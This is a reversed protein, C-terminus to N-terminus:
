LLIPANSVSIPPISRKRSFIVASSKPASLSLGHQLLWQNLSDLSLCLSSAADDISPDAVYLAIDDAYQMYTLLNQTTMERNYHTEAENRSKVASTCEHDWWPPSPIKNRASNKLPFSSDASSTIAEVFGEYCSKAHRHDYPDSLNSNLNPLNDIKQELISAFKLWDPKSLNYKLLPASTKELYTRNILSIVIPYHDSGHSLTTCNWHISAALEASCFTLDVCSKQQGPLSRRTACGNNLVCLDLDDLIEVLAAGFADCRESGWRYHHCNFDGMVLIPGRVNSLINRLVVLFDNHPHAIYVSLVTIGEIRGSVISMDGTLSPLPLPSLPVKNNVFLASGGYGDSRDCRLVNYHPIRFSLSPTLWTEAISCALPKFKNILFILDHKKHWVSRVNWQLFTLKSAM